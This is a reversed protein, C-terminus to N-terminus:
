NKAELQYLRNLPRRTKIGRMEVHAARPHGDTGEILGTVKALPWRGRPGENHVLVVDGVEPIRTPRGRPSVSWSRLASVYEATWRRILHESVRRQHRWARTIYDCFTTSPSLVGRISTVGFLFHAPTLLDEDVTTLPRLNLHFALEYLTVALEDHSLNCLHLTIRLCKKTVGVMREWFGGWWPAAEPIFKWTVTRPIHSLLAHFTKANDSFILSPTGRIAFFRRLALKVEDTHQSRVLELHVARSTACTILLVWVKTGASTVLPGFFDLGVKDFARSPEVRFSPLGGDASRYSQGRYRRCRRCTSVVRLVSRRRVLYEASLIALTTRTGQHFCKKHAEEIILTTIYAFEPLIPLPIENTRPVACVLGDDDLRPRLKLLSSNKSLLAGSKLAKLEAGFARSQAERIWYHLAQSYEDSTLSGSRRDVSRRANHVFRLVWATRCVVQKLSSCETINFLVANEHQLQLTVQPTVVESHVEPRDELKAVSSLDTLDENVMLNTGDRLFSPGRWWLECKEMAQLSVGRTGLDAPNEAGKVHFWRDPATLQLISSVRNQVFVKRQKRNRIWHLVDTSDTWFTVTPNELALSGKIFDMLRAGSLAAMLELRPVTLNPSIPALRSKAMVLGSEGGHVAYVAACYAKESADCFIHFTVDSCYGGPILPRPFSVNRGTVNKWWSEVEKQIVETLTDDWKAKPMDKWTRQFLVKGGILWPTLLGLPDFPKAVASLLESKTSPCSFDPIVVALRDTGTDWRLGLVSADSSPDGTIRVKHLTMNAEAFIEKTRAMQVEAEERTEFNLCIDDMYSGNQILRCLESDSALYQNLHIKVTKLLMFPSCTLGFPVRAFRLRMDQWFFQLYQRDKSSVAVQHFAAKIDAQCGIRGSRFNLVVSPLTILLNEGSDLYDNLSRGVGDGASGDFVVRLKSNRSVGHHPLFFEGPSETGYSLELGSESWQAQDRSVDRSGKARPCDGVDSRIETNAQSPETHVGPLDSGSPEVVEDDLMGRIQEDYLIFKQESLKEFMRQTRARASSENSVPREESKWVLGMEYREEQVNWFPPPYLRPHDLAEGETIGVTDLDWMEQVQRCHFTRHRPQDASAEDHQGHLVYGFVTEIARLGEGLDVQEWLVVRYINDLGILLDVEGGQFDDAMELRSPVCPPTSNPLPVCLRETSWMELKVSCDNWRSKLEVEVRDYSRAEESKEQFGLCAFTGSGTIPLDLDKALSSRIYSSDSGGDLLVRVKRSTEPGRAEVLATQFFSSHGGVLQNNYRHHSQNPPQHESMGAVSRSAGGTPRPSFPAAEPSLEPAAAPPGSLSPASNHLLTHHQRGCKACLHGKCNRARHGPGLCRFCAKSAQAVKWRGDLQLSRFKECQSLNQHGQGCASCNMLKSKHQPRSSISHQERQATLTGTTSPVSSPKDIVASASSPKDIVASASVGKASERLRIEHNLFTLFEAFNVSERRAWELRWDEPLKEKVVPLLLSSFSESSVGLTNLARTHASLHDILSRISKLDGHRVPPLALLERMLAERRLDDQQFREKLAAVAESYGGGTVPIGQIARLAVGALHSKLIVFKQIEAYGPNKDVSIEFLEWFEPWRMHDGHFIPIKVSISSKLETNGAINSSDAKSSAEQAKELRALLRTGLFVEDEMTQMHSTDDAQDLKGLQDQVDQLENQLKGVHHLKLALQDPDLAKQDGERYSRLDNCLKTAKSRLKTRSALLNEM